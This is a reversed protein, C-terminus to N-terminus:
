QYNQKHGSCRLRINATTEFFLQFIAEATFQKLVCQRPTSIIYGFLIYLLFLANNYM